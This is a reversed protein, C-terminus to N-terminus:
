IRGVFNAYVSVRQNCLGDGAVIGYKRGDVGGGADGSAVGRASGGGRDDGAGDSGQVIGDSQLVGAEGGGGGDGGDCDEAAAGSAYGWDGGFGFGAGWKEGGYDIEGGLRSQLEHLDMANYPCSVDHGSDALLM